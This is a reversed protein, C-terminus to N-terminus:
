ATKPKYPDSPEDQSVVKKEDEHAAVPALSEGDEGEPKESVKPEEKKEEERDLELAFTEKVDDAMRRFQGLAKGVSRAVEPLKSPGVVLLAVILIIVLEPLGIGFMALLTACFGPTPFYSVEREPQLFRVSNIPAEVM